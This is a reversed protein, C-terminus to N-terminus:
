VRARSNCVRDAVPHDALRSGRPVASRSVQSQPRGAPERRRAKRHLRGCFRKHKPGISQCFALCRHTEQDELTLVLQPGPDIRFPEDPRSRLGAGRAINEDESYTKALRVTEALHATSPEDERRAGNTRYLHVAPPHDPARGPARREFGEAAGRDNGAEARPGVVPEHSGTQRLRYKRPRFHANRVYLAAVIAGARQNSRAARV